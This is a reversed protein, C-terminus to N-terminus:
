NEITNKKPRSFLLISGCVFIVNILVVIKGAKSFGVAMDVMAVMAVLNPQRFHKQPFRDSQFM